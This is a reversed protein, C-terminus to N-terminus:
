KEQQFRKTVKCVIADVVVEFCLSDLIGTLLRSQM